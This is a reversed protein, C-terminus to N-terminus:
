GKEFSLPPRGFAEWMLFTLCQTKSWGRKRRLQEFRKALEKDIRVGPLMVTKGEYRRTGPIRQPIPPSLSDSQPMVGGM